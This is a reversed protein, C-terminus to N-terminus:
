SAGGRMARQVANRVVVDNEDSSKQLSETAKRTKIRGLAIAACARMEPDERKGFMSKGNLLGDLFAVGGEGCMAGYAEFIATRETLDISRIAKDKVKQELRAFAGRHVKASLAKVAALRVERDVDDIVRELAQMASLSAIATLAHVVNLREAPPLDGFVRSMAPVASALKM